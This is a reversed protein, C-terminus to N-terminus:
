AQAVAEALEEPTLPWGRVRVSRRQLGKAVRVAFPPILGCQECVSPGGESGEYFFPGAPGEYVTEGGDLAVVREVRSLEELQQTIMVIAMGQRHLQQLVDLVRNRSAPDLMSTIEDAVLIDPKMAIAGALAALQKQGGSLRHVPRNALGYLGVLELASRAQARIEAPPLGMNELGFVTDDWVTEGILQADPHQMIWRIREPAAEPERVIEGTYRGELGAVLKGLVSKGCGNRGVVGLWEGAHLTLCIRKLVPTERNALYVEVERMKIGLKRM